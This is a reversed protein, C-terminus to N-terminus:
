ASLRADPRDRGADARDLAASVRALWERLLAAVLVPQELHANHGADDLVVATARPYHDLLAFADRYGVVHDHRGTVLLTPGAYPSGAEPDVSPEYRERIRALAAPDAARVGPLVHDRFLAWTRPSQVVTMDTYERGDEPDLSAVLGPDASTVRRPPLDRVPGAVPCLLALGAVQGPLRAALGRALAGGYSNGLVAFPETGIEQAVVETLADLVDDTSSAPVGTSRGMGPLDVYLRRWAGAAAVVPDLPTLLRHDVGFGHVMLVTRGEGLATRYM